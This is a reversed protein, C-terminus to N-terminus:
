IIKLTLSPTLSGHLKSGALIGYPVASRYLTTMYPFWPKTGALIGYLFLLGACILSGSTYNVVRLFGM